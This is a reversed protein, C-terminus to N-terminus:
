KVVQGCFLVEPVETDTIIYFKFPEDAIFEKTDGEEGPLGSGLVRVMSAAAAEIGDEDLKIRTQQVIGSIFLKSDSSMVSFDAEPSFAVDAGRNKIFASMEENEFSTDTEFKPLKIHVNEDSASGIKALVDEINGLAAVTSIGNKMPMIVFKGDSDEYYRFAGTQEMFEKSVSSGDYATFDDESTMMKDFENFWSCKLYITNVLVLDEASLNDSVKPILGETGEDVWKNVKGTLEDSPVDNAEANYKEKIVAKYDPSITGAKDSNHWASCLLKYTMFMGTPDPSKSVKEYWANMENENDFGMASLLATKTDSDAGAVALVLVARLSAPSVMYNKDKFGSDELFKILEGDFNKSIITMDVEGQATEVEGQATEAEGKATEAEGKATEAEEQMTEADVQAAKTEKPQQKLADRRSGYSRIAFLSSFFFLVCAIVVILGKIINNM